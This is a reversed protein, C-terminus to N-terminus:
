RNTYCVYLFCNSIGGNQTYFDKYSLSRPACRLSVQMAVFINYEANLTKRILTATKRKIM